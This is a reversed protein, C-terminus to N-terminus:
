MFRSLALLEDIGNEGLIARLFLGARLCEKYAAEAKRSDTDYGFEDAWQEFAAYNIAEGDLALCYLVDAANPTIARGTKSNIGTALERAIIAENHLTNKPGKLSAYCPLHAIGASYNFSQQYARRRITVRWQIRAEKPTTPVHEFEFQLASAAILAAIKAAAETHHMEQITM